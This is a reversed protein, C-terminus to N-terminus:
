CRATKRKRQLTGRAIVKKIYEPGYPVKCATSGMNVKVKGIKESLQIAYDSLESVYSGVSIIFLNMTSRVRNPAQHIEKVIRDMLSKILNMDLESDPKLSVMYSLTGWGSSAINEKDSDIWELALELGYPSESAVWAVVYESLMYWYANEAWKQIDQKTMKTEDAMLGALYMADSIGSDYLEMSLAYNKKTIKLIKKLDEVKVGYYPERAGHNLYIKKISDNGLSKLEEIIKTSTM